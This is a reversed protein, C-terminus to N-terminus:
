QNLALSAIELDFAMSTVHCNTLFIEKRLQGQTGFILGRAGNAPGSNSIRM